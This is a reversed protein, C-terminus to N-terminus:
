NGTLQRGATSRATSLIGQSGDPRPMLEGTTTKVNDMAGSQQYGGSAITLRATDGTIRATDTFARTSTGPEGQPDSGIAISHQDTM